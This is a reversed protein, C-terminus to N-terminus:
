AFSSAFFSGQASKQFARWGSSRAISATRRSYAREVGGAIAGDSGGTEIPYDKATTLAFRSAGLMGLLAM